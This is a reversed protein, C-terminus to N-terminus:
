PRRLRNAADSLPAVLSVVVLPSPVFVVVIVNASPEVTDIVEAGEVPPEPPPELEELEVLEEPLVLVGVPTAFTAPLSRRSCDIWNCACNNVGAVVSFTVVAYRFQATPVQNTVLARIESEADAKEPWAQDKLVALVGAQAPVILRV